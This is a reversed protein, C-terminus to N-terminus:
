FQDNADLIIGQYSLAVGERTCETLRRWGAESDSLTVMAQQQEALQQELAAIRQHLRPVDVPTSAPLDNVSAMQHHEESIPPRTTSLPMKRRRTASRFINVRSM